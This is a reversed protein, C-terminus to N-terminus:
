FYRVKWLILSPADFGKLFNSKEEKIEEILEGIFTKLPVTVPFPNNDGQVFCFLTYTDDSM